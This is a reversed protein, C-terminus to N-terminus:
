VQILNNFCGPEVQLGIEHRVLNNTGAKWIILVLQLKPGSKTGEKTIAQIMLTVLTEIVIPSNEYRSIDNEILMTEM